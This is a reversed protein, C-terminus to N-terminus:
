RIPDRLVIEAAERAADAAEPKSSRLHAIQMLAEGTRSLLRVLDGEEARTNRVLSDWTSGRAWNEATAAASLNIEDAPEVGLEWEVRSVDFIVDEFATLVGLLKPSPDLSGYDRDPDAALAAMFGAVEGIELKAYLDEKLAEGVLLPRDLRLDALWKGDDTVSQAAFDLYGYYDLVRARQEFPTWIGSRLGEIDRLVLEYGFVREASQWLLAEAAEHKERDLGDPVMKALLGEILKVAEKPDEKKLSPKPERLVPNRGEYIDDFATDISNEDLPYKKAYVRGIKSLSISTGRGDDRMAMVKDGFVNLVLLFQRGSKSKSVIRGESVNEKLWAYRIQSRTEPLKEELRSKAAALREFGIANEVPISIGDVNLERDLKKKKKEAKDELSAIRHSIDRFAFSREAIDRVQDFNGFADLLNLLNTYTARFKSELPDAPSDLLEAIKGPDQFKGPALVIFGVNDKGRRGARGTMQQLESAMLPRWGDNGRTDANAVVVTRAPFDVGAAVTSTAFIANLLGASMMSEVLLKWSPLHGAHHSAIGANVLISRHKHRRVEPNDEAYRDFMSQRESQKSLDARFTRDLAVETASEDCKRRSPVFVIAPLLNHNRLATILRPPPIDPLDYRM